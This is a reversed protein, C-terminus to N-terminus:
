CMVNLRVSHCLSEHFLGIWAAGLGLPLNGQGLVSVVLDM